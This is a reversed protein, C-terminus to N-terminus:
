NMDKVPIHCVLLEGWTEWDRRPIRASRLLATSLITEIRDSFELKELIREFGKLVTGIAGVVNPIVTEKLAFKNSTQLHKNGLCM